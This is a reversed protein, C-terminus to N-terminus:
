WAEEPEVESEDVADRRVVVDGVGDRAEIGRPELVRTLIHEAEGLSQALSIEGAQTGFVVRDEESDESVQNGVGHPQDPWESSKGESGDDRGSDNSTM